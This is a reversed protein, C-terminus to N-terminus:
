KSPAVSIDGEARQLAAVIEDANAPKTLYHVAGLKIAEV